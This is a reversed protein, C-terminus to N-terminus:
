LEDEPSIFTQQSHSEEFPTRSHHRFAADGRKGVDFPWHSKKKGGEVPSKLSACCSLEPPGGSDERDLRQPDRIDSGVEEGVTTHAAASRRTVM